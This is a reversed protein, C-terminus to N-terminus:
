PQLIFEVRRNMRCNTEDSNPVIPQTKGKSSIMMRNAEIGKSVMYAKAANARDLGLQYNLENSGKDDTHGELMIKATPYKKMLEVKRELEPHMQSLIQDKSFDFGYIASTMDPDETAIKGKLQEFAKLIEKTNRAMIDEMQAATLGEYPKDSAQNYINTVPAQSAKEKKAFPKTGFALQLKLGFSLTKVKDTFAVRDNGDRLDKDYKSFLVSNSKYTAPAQNDFEYFNRSQDYDDGDLINNLGYDLYLGTYLYLGSSTKWKIGTEAAAIFNLGFDLDGSADVNYNGFGRDEMGAYADKTTRDLNANIDWAHTSMSGTAEYTSKMPIGIKPGIGVYFKHGKPSIDTQYRAMIPINIYAGKQTEEYNQGETVLEYLMNSYKDVATYTDFISPFKAKANLMSYEAGIGLSWNYNMYYSYGIGAFGGLGMKHSGQNLDYELSSVGGAVWLSFEHKDQQKQQEQAFSSVAFLGITIALFIKKM